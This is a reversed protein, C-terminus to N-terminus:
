YVYWKIKNGINKARARFRKTMNRQGNIEKQQYRYYTYPITVTGEYEDLFPKLQKIEVILPYEKGRRKSKLVFAEFISLNLRSAKLYKERESWVHPALKKIHEPNYDGHKQRYHMAEEALDVYFKFLEIPDDFGGEGTNAFSSTSCVLLLTVILKKLTNM